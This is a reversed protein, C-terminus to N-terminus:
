SPRATSLGNAGRADFRKATLTLSSFMNGVDPGVCADPQKIESRHPRNMENTQIRYFGSHVEKRDGCLDTEGDGERM